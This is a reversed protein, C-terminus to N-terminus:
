GGTRENSIWLKVTQEADDDNHAYPDIHFDEEMNSDQEEVENAEFNTVRVLSGLPANNVMTAEYRYSQSYIAGDWSMQFLHITGDSQALSNSSQVGPNYDALLSVLPPHSTLSTRLPRVGLSQLYKEDKLRVFRHKGDKTPFDGFNTSPYLLDLARGAQPCLHYPSLLQPPRVSRPPIVTDSQSLGLGQNSSTRLSSESFYHALIDSRHRTWAVLIATDNPLASGHPTTVFSLGGITDDSRQFGWRLLPQSTHRLDYLCISKRSALAAQFRMDPRVRAGIVNDDGSACQAFKMCVSSERFDVTELGKSTTLMITKPHALYECCIYNDEPSVKRVRISQHSLRDLNWLAISGDNLLIASESLIHPNM